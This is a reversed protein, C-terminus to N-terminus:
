VCLHEIVIKIGIAVLLIGGIIEASKQFKHGMKRGIWIGALAFIFTCLGIIATPYWIAMAPDLLVQDVKINARENEIIM